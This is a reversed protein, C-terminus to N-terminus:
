AAMRGYQIMSNPTYQSGMTVYKQDKIEKYLNANPQKYIKTEENM